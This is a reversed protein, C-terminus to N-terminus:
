QSVPSDCKSDAQRNCFRKRPEFRISEVVHTDFAGPLHHQIPENRAEFVHFVVIQEFQRDTVSLVHVSGKGPRAKVGKGLVSRSNLALTNRLLSTLRGPVSRVKGPALIELYETAWRAMTASDTLHRALFDRPVALKALADRDARALEDAM